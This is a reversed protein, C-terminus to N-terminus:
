RRESAGNSPHCTHTPQAQALPRRHQPPPWLQSALSTHGLRPLNAHSHGTGPSLSLTEQLTVADETCKTQVPSFAGAEVEGDGERPM